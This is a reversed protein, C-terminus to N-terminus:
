NRGMMNTRVAPKGFTLEGDGSFEAMVIVITMVGDPFLKFWISNMVFPSIDDTPIQIWGACHM